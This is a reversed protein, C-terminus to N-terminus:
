VYWPAFFEVLVIENDNIFSEFNDKTLTVVNKDDEKKGNDAENSTVTSDTYEGTAPEDSQESSEVKKADKIDDADDQVEETKMICINVFILSLFFLLKLNRFM